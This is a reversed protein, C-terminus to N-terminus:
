CTSALFGETGDVSVKTCGPMMSATNVKSGTTFLLFDSLDDLSAADIFECLIKVAKKVSADLSEDPLKLLKKVFTPSVTQSHHVFFPEFKKPNKKIENLM